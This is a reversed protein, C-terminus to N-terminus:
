YTNRLLAVQVVAEGVIENGGNLNESGSELSRAAHVVERGSDANELTRDRQLGM